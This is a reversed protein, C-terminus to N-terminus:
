GKVGDHDRIATVPASQYYHKCLPILLSLAILAFLTIIGAAGFTLALYFLYVEPIYLLMIMVVAMAFMITQVFWSQAFVAALGYIM